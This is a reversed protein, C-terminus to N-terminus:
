DIESGYLLIHDKIVESHFADGRKALRKWDALTFAEISLPVSLSDEMERALDDFASKDMQTIILLDLDSREDYDGSSYSGYLVLSIVHEDVATAKDVFGNDHLLFLIYMRKLSKVLPLENNLKYLHIQGIEEKRLIDESGFMKMSELASRPSIELIRSLEKIYFQTTPNKLFHEM